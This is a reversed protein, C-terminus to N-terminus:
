QWAEYCRRCAGAALLTWFLGLLFNIQAATNEGGRSSARPFASSRQARAGAPSCFRVTHCPPEQVPARAFSPSFAAVCPSAPHSSPRTPLSDATRPWIPGSKPQHLVTPTLSVIVSPCGALLQSRALTVLVHLYHRSPPVDAGLLEAGWGGRSDKM